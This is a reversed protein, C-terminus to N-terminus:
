LRLVRIRQLRRHWSARWVGVRPVFVVKTGIEACLDIEPCGDKYEEGVCHIRPKLEQLMECANDSTFVSVDHVVEVALLASARKLAPQPNPRKNKKIYEDSNILVILKDQPRCQGKAFGLLFLHGAHLGDFCGNCTVIDNM